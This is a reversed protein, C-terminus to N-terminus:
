SDKLFSISIIPTSLNILLHKKGTLFFLHLFVSDLPRGKVVKQNLEKQLTLIFRPM